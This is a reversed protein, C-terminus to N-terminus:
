GKVYGIVRDWYIPCRNLQSQNFLDEMFYRLEAAMPNRFTVSCKDCSLDKSSIIIGLIAAILIIILIIKILIRNVM